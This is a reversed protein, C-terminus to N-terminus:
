PRHRERCGGARPSRRSGDGVADDAILSASASRRLLQDRGECGVCSREIRHILLSRAQALEAETGPGSELLCSVGLPPKHGPRFDDLREATLVSAHVAFAGRIKAAKRGGHDSGERRPLHLSRARGRAVEDVGLGRQTECALNVALEALRNGRRQGPGFVLAAKEVSREIELVDFRRGNGTIQRAVHLADVSHPLHEREVNGGQVTGLLRPLEQQCSEACEFTAVGLQARFPDGGSKRGGDSRM